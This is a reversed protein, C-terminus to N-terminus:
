TPNMRVLFREAQAGVGQCFSQWDEGDYTIIDSSSEPWGVPTTMLCVVGDLFGAIYKPQTTPFYIPTEFMRVRNDLDQIFHTLSGGDAGMPHAPINGTGDVDELFRLRTYTSNDYGSLYNYTKYYAAAAGGYLLVLKASTDLRKILGCYYGYQFYSSSVMGVNVYVIRNGNLFIQYSTYFKSFYVADTTSGSGTHAGADWSEWLILSFYNTQNDGVLVYYTVDGVCRYVKANTGASADFVSWNAHLPLVADLVTIAGGAVNVIEGSYRM